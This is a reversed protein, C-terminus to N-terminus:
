IAYFWGLRLWLKQSAPDDLLNELRYDLGMVLKTKNNIFYGFSTVFRVEMDSKADQWSYIPEGSMLLYFEGADLSQGELPLEASLRYRLRMKVANSSYITQDTRFRHGIRFGTMRQLLAAQQIFRHPNDGNGELRYQYGGAIKIFPNLRGELFLQIDTQDYAYEFRASEAQYLEHVSEIKVTQQIKDSWKYSVSVEPLLGAHFQQGTAM